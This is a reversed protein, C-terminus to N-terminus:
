VEICLLLMRDGQSSHGGKGLVPVQSSSMIRGGAEAWLRVYLFPRLFPPQTFHMMPSLLSFFLKLHSVLAETFPNQSNKSILCRGIRFNSCEKVYIIKEM